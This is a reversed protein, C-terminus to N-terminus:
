TLYLGAFFYGRALGALRVSFVSIRFTRGSFIIYFGGLFGGIGGLLLFNSM